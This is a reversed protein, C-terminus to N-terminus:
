KNILRKENKMSIGTEAEEEGGVGWVEGDDWNGM